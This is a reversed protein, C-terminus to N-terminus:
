TQHVSVPRPIVSRLKQKQTIFRQEIPVLQAVKKDKDVRIAWKWKGLEEKGKKRYFYERIWLYDEEKDIM